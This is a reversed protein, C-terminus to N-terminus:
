SRRRLHARRGPDRRGGRGGQRQRHGRLPQKPAAAAAAKAEQAKKAKAQSSLFLGGGALVIVLIALIWVIRNRAFALM